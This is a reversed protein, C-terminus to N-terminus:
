AARIRVAAEVLSFIMVFKVTDLVTLGLAFNLLKFNGELNSCDKTADSSKNM